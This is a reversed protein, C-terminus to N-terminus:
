PTSQKGQVFEAIRSVSEFNGPELDGDAIEIGFREELFLILSLLGSSTIIGTGFLQEEPSPARADELFQTRVFTAIDDTM